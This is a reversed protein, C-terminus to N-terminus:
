GLEEHATERLTAIVITSVIAAAILYFTHALPSNFRDILWVSIFPAFGGFIAVALAYGSDDLDLAHADPLNRSRPPGPGSFMAILIAFLIQVM